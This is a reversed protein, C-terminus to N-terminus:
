SDRLLVATHFLREEEDYWHTVDGGHAEAIRRVSALGLGHRGPAKKTSQLLGNETETPPASCSNELTV